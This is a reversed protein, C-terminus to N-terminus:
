EVSFDKALPELKRSGQPFFKERCVCEKLELMLEPLKQTILNIKCRFKAEEIDRGDVPEIHTIRFIQLKGDQHLEFSIAGLITQNSTIEGKEWPHQLHIKM